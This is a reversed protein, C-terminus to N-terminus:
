GAVPARCQRKFKQLDSELRRDIWRHLLSAARSVFGADKWARAQFELLWPLYEPKYTLIGRYFSAADLSIKDEILRHGLWRSWHTAEFCDMTAHDWYPAITYLTNMSVLDFRAKM